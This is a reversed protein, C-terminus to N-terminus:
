DAHKLLELFDEYCERCLWWTKFYRYADNMECRECFLPKKRM